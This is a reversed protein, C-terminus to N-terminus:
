RGFRISLGARFLYDPGPGALSTQAAADLAIVRTV